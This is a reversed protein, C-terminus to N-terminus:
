FLVQQRTESIVIVCQKCQIFIVVLV